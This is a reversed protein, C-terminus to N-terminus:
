EMAVTVRITVTVAGGDTWALLAALGASAARRNPALDVLHQMPQRLDWCVSICSSKQCICSYVDVAVLIPTVLTM